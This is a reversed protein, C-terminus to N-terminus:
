FLGQGLRNGIDALQKEVAAKGGAAEAGKLENLVKRAYEVSHGENRAWVVNADGQLSIKNRKLLSRAETVLKRNERSWGSFAGEMVIHHMHPNIMGAPKKALLRSVTGKNINCKKLGCPDIWDVVNPAYEYVNAGGDLGLPDQSMFGGSHPDYYRYRNYFLGTEVDEYQGQLRIANEDAAGRAVVSRGFVDMRAAWVVAGGADLLRIPAGNPDVCYFRQTTGAPTTDLAAMPVFSDAYGVYERHRYEGGHSDPRARREALLTDGDWWFRVSDHGTHKRTRRGVADYEYSTTRGELVTTVLRQNADWALRLEGREDRRTILNGARDFRYYAGDYEGERWWEFAEEPVAHELVPGRGSWATAYAGQVVRSRVRDGAPDTFYRTLTGQPDLHATVRGVPDHTFRELGFLTDRRATMRGAADYEYHVDVATDLGTRVRQRAMRGSVTLEVERRVAPTLQEAIVQGAADRTIVVPPGDDIQVASLEGAADYSYRVVHRVIVGDETCATTREVRNGSADYANVVTFDDGQKEEVLRGEADFTREVRTHTNAATLFDGNPDYSYSHELLREDSFPDKIWKNLVRGLPDTTYCITRRLPDIVQEIYGAPSYRYSRSQGWYDVEEVIRGLPDRILRYRDGRQNTVGVLREEADYDYTLVHGDPTIRRAVEGQGFYEFRTTGGNEDVHTVLNDEPDYACRVTAGSPFRVEVLRSKLDYGYTTTLGLPDISAVVNGLADYVFRTEHGLADRLAVINGVADTHFLSRNGRPDILAALQGRADYEFRSTNGLPSMQEVLLGRPDWSQRWEHGNPDIVAIAKDDADFQNVTSAGDPRTLTVLNGREDYAYETRHGDQDVVATTRGADDYEFVTMGGLPDIENIPLGRDDLTVVSVHGLSDTIRREKLVDAYEFTYDYLGGDGWSHTVRWDEGGTDYDYHFSLGNRNTHRVLHHDAYAFRYPQGLADLVTVLDGAQDYEYRVFTHEVNTGPVRLTVERLRGNDVRLEIRRGASEVIGTLTGSRRDFDLWNGCRDAIRGVPYELSGLDGVRALVKPFHYIRDEGTVVRFEDGHDTLRSGDAIEVQAGADGPADPLQPFFLAAGGADHMSVVGDLPDIELRTDAPTEWGRGCLGERDGGSAYARYWEIPIPGPLTFDIQEVSVEGTLINVPEARLIVCKLFGPKLKGFLKQRIRKFFKSKAFKGLASFVGKMALGMLSITPPGGVFVSTPIALNFTTPLLMAKKGSSKKKLRPISIMGAVQCGLVPVSIFSFPDGDAVVTSSGMFLEDDKDPLKPAFPFGPPIHVVTGNTGATARKMGCVTVTAGLYPVYDFPDFVVSIHPTPLPVPSPSPPVVCLHIDVGLQSDGHKAAPMM